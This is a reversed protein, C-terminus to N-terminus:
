RRRWGSWAPFGNEDRLKLIEEGKKVEAAIIAPKGQCTIRSGTIEVKDGPVIKIDQRQVYWAPGLHVSITERETKVMLHVGSSMGKLPIITDVSIVEGRIPEVTKSNYLRGYQTGPGWSGSGYWKMRKAPQALSETAFLIILFLTLVALTGTKKM